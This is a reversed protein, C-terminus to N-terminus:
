LLNISHAFLERRREYDKTAQGNWNSGARMHLFSDLFLESFQNGQNSQADFELFPHLCEPLDHADSKWQWNGSHLGTIKVTKASTKSLWINMAGGTDLAVGDIVDCDWNMTSLNQSGTGDYFFIGPWPYVVDEGNVIRSQPLYWTSALSFHSEPNFPKIPVMDSDLMVLPLMPDLHKLGFQVTDATRISASRSIPRKTKPFQRTRWLHLYQPMRLYQAGYSRAVNELDRAMGSTFDNSPHRRKRSDDVVTVTSDAPFFKSIAGLQADLLNPAGAVAILVQITTM